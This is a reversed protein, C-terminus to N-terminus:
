SRATAAGPPSRADRGLDRRPPRWAGHVAATDGGGGFPLHPGPLRTREGTDRSRDVSRDQRDRRGGRAAVGGSGASRRRSVAPVGRAGRGQRGRRAARDGTPKIRTDEPRGYSSLYPSARMGPPAPG